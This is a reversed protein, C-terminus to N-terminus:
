RHDSVVAADPDLEELPGLRNGLRRVGDRLHARVREPLIGLQQAVQVVTLNDLTHLILCVRERPPLAHLAAAIPDAPQEDDLDDDAWDHPHILQKVARWRRHRSEQKLYSSTIARRVLREAPAPALAGRRRDFTAVLADKVLDCSQAPDGSVLYAYGVLARERERLLGEMSTRWDAM